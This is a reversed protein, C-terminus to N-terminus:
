LKLGDMFEEIDKSIPIVHTELAFHGSHYLKTIANPLDKKFAELGPTVFFPDGDGWVGLFPPQHKKFNAHFTPYLALNNGYDYLLDTQIATQGPRELLASDLTWGVPDLMSILGSPVGTTYQAKVADPSLVNDIVVQRDADSNSRWLRQIPAWAEGLGIEYGNGNQSIIATIAEPRQCFLRFGIPAGYDFVYMAFKKLKLADVFAGITKAINDFTYAYKREDPVHTFGFSPLDPAILRYKHNLLTMLNRFQHSSTPFGHLLLIVPSNEDGASRYFVDVGDVRVVNTSINAM